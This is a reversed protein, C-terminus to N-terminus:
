CSSTSTGSPSPSCGRWSTPANRARSSPCSADPGPLRVLARRADPAPDRRSVRRGDTPQDGPRRPDPVGPESAGRLTLRSTGMVVVEYRPDECADLIGNSAKDDIEVRVAIGSPEDAVAEALMRESLRRGVRLADAGIDPEVWLTTLTREHRVSLRHALGLSARAHSGMSLPALIEGPERRQGPVVFAAACFTETALRRFPTGERPQVDSVVAVLFDSDPNTLVALTEDVIKGPPVIRLQVEVPEDAARTDAPHGAIEEGERARRPCWRDAGLTEDLCARLATAIAASAPSPDSAPDLATKSVSTTDPGGPVVVVLDRGADVGLRLPWRLDDGILSTDSLLLAVTM